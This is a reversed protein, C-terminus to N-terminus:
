SSVFTAWQQIISKFDQLPISQLLHETNGTNPYIDATSNDLWATYLESSVTNKEYDVIGGDLYHDINSIWAAIGTLDTYYSLFEAMGGGRAIYNINGSPM